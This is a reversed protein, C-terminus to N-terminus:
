APATDADRELLAAPTAVAGEALLAHMRATIRADEARVEPSRRDLGRLLPKMRFIEGLAAEHRALFHWYMRTLPCNKGPDFACGACYDSMRHIYPAGAVYPRTTMLPGVAFTGMGLVNPEVVWDYADIYAAWFWDTLARPSVGLLTAINSLVMLRPIHHTWGEAWLDAVVRDLCRLGSPTGWFVPTVDGTAGQLHQPCAGGDLGAPQPPLPWPQGRWRAYGGDGPQPACPAPASGPVARFGDTAEHVQHVFERWGLVQRLFGEQSALPLPLALADRVVQQPLLRHLNLLPAIRTHFLGRSRHTMADEFPGFHPLCAAQAWQWLAAADAATAPLAALDVRGPHHAFRAAILAAVEQKIPDSTDFCPPAPAPPAGRWPKRNEGDFSYRGGLPTGAETMLVGTTQRVHRYFRDMRWPPAEGAGVRFDAATTLWGEHPVERLQGAAVLPALDARLEREAPRMVTLPGLEEALPALAERYPGACVTHRVAVGRAAQELAFHRLNSLVLALKQQHYPRRAAKWPTEVLVIGVASPPLRSLPGVQDTLQDSAVLLWTRHVSSSSPPQGALLARLRARFIEM